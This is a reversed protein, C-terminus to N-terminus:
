SPVVVQDGERLEGSVEARANAILGPKVPVLVPAAGDRVVQVGYGGEALALLATVPVVLVGDARRDTVTVTVAPQAGDLTKRAAAQDTLAITVTAKDKGGGGGGGAGPGDAGSRPRAITRVKGQVKGGGALAVEVTSGPAFQPLQDDEPQVTAVLETDTVKLVTGGSGGAATGGLKAVVEQVRVTRDPLVAVRGLEVKGTEELKLAKQWRKVAAATADTFKDDVKLDLGKAYGLDVLNQELQRVDAGDTMGVALERWFPRTGTFLVVPKGDLEYIVGGAKIEEDAAPLKTFTGQGQAGLETATGYGIRGGLNMGSSLSTRQVAVTSHKGGAPAAAADDTRWPQRVAVVAAATLAAAVVLAVATRRVARGSRSRGSPRVANTDPAEHTDPAPVASERETM